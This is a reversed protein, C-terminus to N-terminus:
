ESSSSVDSQDDAVPKMGRRLPQLRRRRPRGAHPRADGRGRRRGHDARDDTSLPNMANGHVRDVLGDLMEVADDVITQDRPRAATCCGARSRSSPTSCRASASSGTPRQRPRRRLRRAGGDTATRTRRRAALAPRPGPRRGAAGVLRARGHRRRREVCSRSPRRALRQHGDAPVALARPRSAADRWRDRLAAPLSRRDRRRPRDALQAAACASPPADHVPLGADAVFATPLSHIAAIARGISGALGDGRPRRRRGHTARRPPLRLRDRPDRRRAGPRRVDPRRVAAPQPHRRHARAARRPRRVARDRRGALHARARHVTAGDRRTLLASDFDGAGGAGHSRAARRRRPRPRGLHGARSSHLPIQGHM